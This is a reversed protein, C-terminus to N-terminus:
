LLSCSSHNTGVELYWCPVDETGDHNSALVDCAGHPPKPLEHPHDVLLLVAVTSIIEGDVVNPLCCQLTVMHSKVHNIQNARETGKIKTSQLM